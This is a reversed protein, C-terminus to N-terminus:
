IRLIIIQYISVIIKRLYNNVNNKINDNKKINDNSKNEILKKNNKLM